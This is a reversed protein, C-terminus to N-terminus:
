ATERPGYMLGTVRDVQVNSMVWDSSRPTFKATTRKTTPEFVAERVQYYAGATDPGMIQSLNLDDLILAARADGDYNLELAM